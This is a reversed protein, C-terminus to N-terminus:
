FWARSYLMNGVYRVQIQGFAAEYEESQGNNRDGRSTKVGDVTESSAIWGEITGCRAQVVVNHFRMLMHFEIGKLFFLQRQIM